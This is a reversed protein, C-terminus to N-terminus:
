EAKHVENAITWPEAVCAESGAITRMALGGTVQVWTRGDIEIVSRDVITVEQSGQVVGCMDGEGYGPETRVEARNRLLARDGNPIKAPASASPEIRAEKGDGGNQVGGGGEVAIWAALVSAAAVRAMFGRGSGGFIIAKKSPM